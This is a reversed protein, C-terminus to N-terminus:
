LLKACSPRVKPSRLAFYLEHTRPAEGLDTRLRSPLDFRASPRTQGFGLHLLGQRRHWEGRTRPALLSPYAVFKIRGFNSIRFQSIPLADHLSLTYIETTATDNSRFLM